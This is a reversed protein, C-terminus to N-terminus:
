TFNRLDSNASLVNVFNFETQQPCANDEGALHLRFARLLAVGRRASFPRRYKIFAHSSHQRFKRTNKTM